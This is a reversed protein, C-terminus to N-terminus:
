TVTWRPCWCPTRSPCPRGALSRHITAPRSGPMVALWRWRAAFCGALGGYTAAARALGTAALHTWAFHNTPCFPAPLKVFVAGQPLTLWPIGMDGLGGIWLFAVAGTNSALRALNPAPTGSAM